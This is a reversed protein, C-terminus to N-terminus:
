TDSMSGESYAALKSFPLASTASLALRLKRDAGQEIFAGSQLHQLLCSRDQECHTVFCQAERESSLKLAGGQGVSWFKEPRGEQTCAIRVITCAPM